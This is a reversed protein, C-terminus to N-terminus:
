LADAAWDTLDSFFSCVLLKVKENFLVFELVEDWDCWGVENYTERVSHFLIHPNSISSMMLVTAYIGHISPLLESRRRKIGHQKLSWFGGPSFWSFSLWTRGPIPLDTEIAESLEAGKWSHTTIDVWLRGPTQPLSFTPLLHAARTPANKLLVLFVFFKPDFCIIKRHSLYLKFATSKDATPFCFLLNSHHHVPMQHRKWQYCSPICAHCHFQLIEMTSFCCISVLHKHNKWQGGLYSCTM